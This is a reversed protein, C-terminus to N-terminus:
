GVCFRQHIGYCLWYLHRICRVILDQANVLSGPTGHVQVFLAGPDDLERGLFADDSYPVGQSVADHPLLFPGRVSRDGILGLVGLTTLITTTFWM